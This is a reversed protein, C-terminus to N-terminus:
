LVEGRHKGPSTIDVQYIETKHEKKGTPMLFVLPIAFLLGLGFSIFTIRFGNGPNSSLHLIFTILSIGFVGGVARFMGRLGVITSVKEPMLEICANNSAPNAIGVGIGSLLVLFALIEAIGLHIGIMRWLQLEQGLLITSLSIIVLGLVMPWRYGWRKLLFSTIASAPIIGLSRPTLIVGSMLTSLNHVSTVYLPVFAFIGFVGAGFIMNYLNAVLFPKSKLLAIDLIPNSVKKEQRFFLSIFSFSLALFIAAFLFSSGSFNEGIFNFGLMLFLIAGCFFSAGAIDIHPRSIVKSGKLLIMILVILGIGIPLNIYFVYRWSYQSVIWGGLNPGIIGGIPFISTFLGIVRERNEPFHDSVIGAATPLFSAGGIGQLFRFAVLTYINPALGCALSSVTFLILSILFINKRGFNDSLNGALPMATTAAIFYISITWAAWLVNTGLDKMIHPFAVAVVTTDISFMLLSLGVAVFILYRHM